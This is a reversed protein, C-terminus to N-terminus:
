RNTAQKTPWIRDVFIPRDPQPLCRLLQMAQEWQQGEALGAMAATYGAGGRESAERKARKPHEAWLFLQVEPASDGVLFLSSVSGFHLDAARM